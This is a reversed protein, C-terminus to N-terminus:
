FFYANIHLLRRGFRNKMDEKLFLSLKKNTNNYISKYISKIKIINYLICKNRIYNEKFSM